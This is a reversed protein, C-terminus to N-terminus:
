FRLCAQLGLPPLAGEVKPPKAEEPTYAGLWLSGFGGIIGGAAACAYPVVRAKAWDIGNPGSTGLLFGGVGGLLAGGAFGLIFNSFKYKSEPADPKAPGPLVIKDKPLTSPAEQANGSPAAVPAAETAEDPLAPAQAAGAATPSLAQDAAASVTTGAPAATASAATGTAPAAADDALAPLAPALGLSLCLLLAIRGRVTPEM